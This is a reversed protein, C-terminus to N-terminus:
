DRVLSWAHHVDVARELRAIYDVLSAIDGEACSVASPRDNDGDRVFGRLRLAVDTVDPRNIRAVATGPITSM